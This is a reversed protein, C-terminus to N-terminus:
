RRPQPNPAPEGRLTRLRAAIMLFRTAVGGLYGLQLAAACAAALTVSWAFGSGIIMAGGAVILMECAIVPFLIFVKFRTGLVAGFLTSFILIMAM